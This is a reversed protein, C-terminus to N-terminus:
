RSSYKETSVQSGKCEDIRDYDNQLSVCLWIGKRLVIACHKHDTDQSMVPLNEVIFPKLTSFPVWSMHKLWKLNIRIMIGRGRGHDEFHDHEPETYITGRVGRESIVGIEWYKRANQGAVHIVCPRPVFRHYRDLRTGILIELCRNKKKSWLLRTLHHFNCVSSLYGRGLPIFLRCCIGSDAVASADDSFKFLLLHNLFSCVWVNGGYGRRQVM